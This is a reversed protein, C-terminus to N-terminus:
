QSIEQPTNPTAFNGSGIFSFRATSTEATQKTNIFLITKNKAAHNKALASEKPVDLVLVGV